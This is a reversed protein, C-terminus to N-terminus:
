FTTVDGFAAINVASEIGIVILTDTTVDLFRSLADRIGEATSRPAALDKLAWVSTFIPTAGLENLKARFAERNPIREIDCCILYVVTKDLGKLRFPEPNPM